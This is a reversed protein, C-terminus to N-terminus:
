ILVVCITCCLNQQTFRISPFQLVHFIFWIVGVHYQLHGDVVPLMLQLILSRVTMPPPSKMSCVGETEFYFNRKLFDTPKLDYKASKAHFQTRQM